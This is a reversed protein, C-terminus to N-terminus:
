IMNEVVKHKQGFDRNTSQERRPDAEADDGDSPPPSEPETPEYAGNEQGQGSAQTVPISTRDRAVPVARSAAGNYSPPNEEHAPVVSFRRGEGLTSTVQVNAQTSRPVLGRAKYWAYDVQSVVLLRIQNPASQLRSTVQQHNENGVNVGDIEIVIDSMRLGSRDAVSNPDLRMITKERTDEYTRLNFGYSQNATKILHCLRPGPARAYPDSDVSQVRLGNGALESPNGNVPVDLPEPTTYRKYDSSDSRQKERLAVSALGIDAPRNSPCRIVVLSRSSSNMPQKSDVFHKEARGDVVLLQVQSGPSTKILEAVQAHSMGNTIESNVEIIKDGNQLGALVAPSDDDIQEIFHGTKGTKSTLNFGYGQFEPWKKLVCQRLKYEENEYSM